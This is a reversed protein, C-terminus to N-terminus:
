ELRFSAIFADFVARESDAAHPWYSRFLYVEGNMQKAYAWALGDGGECGGVEASAWSGDLAMTSIADGWCRYSVRADSTADIVANASTLWHLTTFIGM